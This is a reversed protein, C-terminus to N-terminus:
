KKKKKFILVNQHIKVLKKTSSFIKDARMAASGASNLLIAENYLPAGSDIFAKKTDSIFDRYFGDKGRIDGVVFIAYHDPKLKDLAKRIISRYKEIFDPYDLTSLDEPLDSYRELDGYPPCSFILDFQHIWKGDLLRDSDGQYWNPQNNLPCISLAQDRNSAVQEERLELGTYKFGLYNAVIGRVSGGAFPDLIMGGEPCYWRYMLECLAPDFISTFEGITKSFGLLNEARGVESKIGKNLWKKKRGQWNGGQTNLVSFPPEIFRDRLLVDMEIPEGFLDFNQPKNEQNM